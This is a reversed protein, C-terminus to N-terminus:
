CIRRRSPKPGQTQHSIHRNVPPFKLSSSPLPSAVGYPEAFDLNHTSASPNGFSKSLLSVLGPSVYDLLDPWEKRGWGMRSSTGPDKAQCCAQSDLPSPPLNQWSRCLVYAYMYRPGQGLVGSGQASVVQSTQSPPVRGQLAALRAEMEQTSPISGQTEKRLAALRAEIEAQSAM